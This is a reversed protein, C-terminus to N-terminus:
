MGSRASTTSSRSTSATCGRTCGAGCGGPEDTRLATGGRAPDLYLWTAVPDEYRARLAPRSRTGRSDYYHDDFEHLWVADRVPVGPMAIKALEVLSEGKLHREDFARFAGSDPRAASVYRQELVPRPARPLLGIRM